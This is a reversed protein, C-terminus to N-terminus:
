HHVTTSICAWYSSIPSPLGCDCISINRLVDVKLLSWVTKLSLSGEAEVDAPIMRDLGARSEQAERADGASKM